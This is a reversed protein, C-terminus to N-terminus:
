SAKKFPSELRSGGEVLNGRLESGDDKRKGGEESQKRWFEKRSGSGDVM